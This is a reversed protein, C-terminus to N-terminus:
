GEKEGQVEEGRLFGMFEAKEAETAPKGDVKRISVVREREQARLRRAAKADALACWTLAYGLVDPLGEFFWELGNPRYTRVADDPAAYYRRLAEVEADSVGPLAAWAAVAADEVKGPLPVDPNLRGLMPLASGLRVLWARFRGWEEPSLDARTRGSVVTNSGRGKYQIRNEEIRTVGGGHCEGHCGDRESRSVDRSVVRSVEKDRARKNAQRRSNLAREKASEGCHKGFELAYVLGDEGLAAWGIGILAEAGGRFGIEDDLEDPSLGTQGDVTQEDVWCLWHVALGLAAHKKCRLLRMLGRVKASRVLAHNLKLWDAM